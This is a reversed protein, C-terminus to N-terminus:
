EQEIQPCGFGIHLRGVGPTAPETKEARREGQIHIQFREETRPKQEPQPQPQPQSLWNQNEDLGDAVRQPGEHRSCHEERQETEPCACFM